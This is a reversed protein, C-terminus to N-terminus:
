DVIKYNPNDKLAAKKEPHLQEVQAKTLIRVETKSAELPVAKVEPMEKVRIEIKQPDGVKQLGVKQENTQTTVEQRLARRMEKYSTESNANTTGAIAASSVLVWCVLSCMIMLQKRM